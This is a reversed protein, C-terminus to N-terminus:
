SPQNKKQGSEAEPLVEPSFNDPSEKQGGIEGFTDSFGSFYKGPGMRITETLIGGPVM